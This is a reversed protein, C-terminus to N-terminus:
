WGFRERHIAEAPVGSGEADAAVQAAWAAPGCVFVDREAVGPALTVLTAESGRPVWGDGRPGELLHLTAGSQAALERVEDLLPAEEGSRIRVVVDCPEGPEMAELMARVPTVGIGAAVLVTGHGRRARHTFVGLPGEVMVRTGPRVHRLATTFDGSPKVTVRLSTDAPAAALSFPHAERWRERDLFRWLMFQGPHAGLASLGRGSVVIDTSGDPLSRVSAVRTDHRRLRVLPQIVRHTLLAGFAVVYLAIWYGTALDGHRFTSGELVQHPVAAAVAAYVILHVAHWAEYRWRRRVVALSLALVVLFLALALQATALFWSQTFLAATESWPTRGDYYGTMSVITAAHALMLIIAWRGLRTHLATTADHGVSGEIWPARSVLLVQALMLVTAVIGLARGLSYLYDIPANAVLGGARLMLAVGAAAVFWVAAELADAWLERRAATRRRAMVLATATTTM